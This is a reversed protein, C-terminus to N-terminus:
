EELAKRASAIASYWKPTSQRQTGQSKSREVSRNWYAELGSRYGNLFVYYLSESILRTQRMFAVTDNVPDLDSIAQHDYGDPCKGISFKPTARHGQRRDQFEFFYFNKGDCLVAMIPVNFGNQFNM